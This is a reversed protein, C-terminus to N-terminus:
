DPRADSDTLSTCGSFSGVLHRRGGRGEIVLFRLMPKGGVEYQVATYPSGGGSPHEEMRGVIHLNDIVEPVALHPFMQRLYHAAAGEPTRPTTERGWAEAKLMGQASESTPCPLSRIFTVLDDPSLEATPTSSGSTALSMPDDNSARVLLIGAAIAVVLAGGAVATRVTM